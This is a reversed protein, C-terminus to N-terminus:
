MHRIDEIQQTPTAWGALWYLLLQMAPGQQEAGGSTSMSSCLMCIYSPTEQIQQAPTAWGGMWYLLLQM